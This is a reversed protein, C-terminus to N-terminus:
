RRICWVTVATKSDRDSYGGGQQSGARVVRGRGPDRAVFLPCTAAGLVLCKGTNFLQALDHAAAAASAVFQPAYQFRFSQLAM